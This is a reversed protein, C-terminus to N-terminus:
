GAPAPCSLSDALAQYSAKVDAAPQEMAARAESPTAGPPIRGWALRFQRLSKSFEDIKPNDLSQADDVFQTVQKRLQTTTYTIADLPAQGSTIGTSLNKVTGAMGYLEKCVDSPTTTSSGSGGSGGSGGCGVGVAVVAVVFVASCLARRM